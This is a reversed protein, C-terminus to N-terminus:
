QLQTRATDKLVGAVIRMMEPMECGPDKHRVEHAGAEKELEEVAVTLANVNYGQVLFTARKKAEVAFDELRPHEQTILCFANFIRITDDNLACKHDDEETHGASEGRENVLGLMESLSRPGSGEEEMRIGVFVIGDRQSEPRPTYGSDFLENLAREINTAYRKMNKSYQVGITRFKPKADTKKQPDAV